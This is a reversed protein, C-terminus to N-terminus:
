YQYMDQLQFINSWYWISCLTKWSLMFLDVSALYYRILHDQALCCWPSYTIPWSVPKCVGDWQGYMVWCRHLQTSVMRRLQRNWPSQRTLFAGSPTAAMLTPAWSSHAVVSGRWRSWNSCCGVECLSLLWSWMSVFVLKVYLCCGVECLSLFWSWMSVVVLKVYLCGVECLSLLWVWISVVVLKVYLCCGVECLSLLWSWMSVVVLKVYLCCGFEYLSLLWSWM